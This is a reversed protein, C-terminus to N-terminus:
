IANVTPRKTPVNKIRNMDGEISMPMNAIKVVISLMMITATGLGFIVKRKITMMNKSLIINGVIKARAM